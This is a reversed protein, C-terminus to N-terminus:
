ATTTKEQTLHLLSLDLVMLNLTKDCYPAGHAGHLYRGTPMKTLMVCGVM